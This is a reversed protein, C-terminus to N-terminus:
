PKSSKRGAPKKAATVAAPAKREPKAAPAEETAALAEANVLELAKLWHVEARGEPMGEDLWLTHAVTRVRDESILKPQSM